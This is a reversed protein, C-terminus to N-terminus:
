RNEESCGLIPIHLLFFLKSFFLCLNLKDEQHTFWLMVVM